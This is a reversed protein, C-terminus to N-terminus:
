NRSAMSAKFSILTVKSFSMALSSSSDGFLDLCGKRTIISVNKGFCRVEIGGMSKKKRKGVRVINNDTTGILM